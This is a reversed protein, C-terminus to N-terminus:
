RSCLAVNKAGTMLAPTLCLPSINTLGHAIAVLSCGLSVMSNIDDKLHVMDDGQVPVTVKQSFDGRAIAECVRRVDRIQTKLLKLEEAASMESEYAAAPAPAHSLSGEDSAFQRSIGTSLDVSSDVTSNAIPRGCAPCACHEKASALSPLAGETQRTSTM